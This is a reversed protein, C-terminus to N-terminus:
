ARTPRTTQTPKWKNRHPMERFEHRPKMLLQYPKPRRKVARPETRNPRDPVRLRAIYYLLDRTLRDLENRRDCAGHIVPIWQRLADITRKFSIRLVAGGHRQAAQLMLSRVLNYAILYMRLEKEIMAPSKCKLIEMGMQTKIDRLFLEALWRRRYIEAFTDRPYLRKDLLTTVILLHRTRFGPIEVHIEIERVTLESPMAKWTECDLWKPRSGSKTWVVLRDGKGLRRLTREGVSRAQHKRMICDVGRERLMQFDAFSCFGRDAVVIDGKEFEEWLRHFLTREPVKLSDWVARLIAGTSMAFVVVMRAVPFGCGPKQGSPQPFRQQNEPTDPMSVSTGDVIRLRRGHCLGDDASPSELGDAVGRMTEDLREDELRGRATCYAATNESVEGAGERALCALLGQVTESCSVNGTLVQWLFLWFTREHSYIRDRHRLTPEYHVLNGCVSPLQTASLSRLRQLRSSIRRTLM